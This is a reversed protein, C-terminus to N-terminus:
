TGTPLSPLATLLFSSPQSFWKSLVHLPIVEVEKPSSFGSLEKRVRLSPSFKSLALYNRLQRGDGPSAAQLIRSFPTGEGRLLDQVVDAPLLKLGQEPHVLEVQLPFLM